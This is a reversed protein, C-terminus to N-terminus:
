SYYAKSKIKYSIIMRFKYNNTNYDSSKTKKFGRVMVKNVFYVYTYRGLLLKLM